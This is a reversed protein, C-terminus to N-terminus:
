GTLVAAALPSPPSPPLCDDTAWPRHLWLAPPPAAYRERPLAHAAFFSCAHFALQPVNWTFTHQQSLAAM